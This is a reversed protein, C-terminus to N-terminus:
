SFLDFDVGGWQLGISNFPDLMISAVVDQQTTNQILMTDGTIGIATSLLINSGLDNSFIKLQSIDEVIIKDGDEIRFDTITQEGNLWIFLDAGSGGTLTNNGGGGNLVDMGAGGTLTDNGIGGTLYDNDDGGDLMDDGYEGELYDNGDNGWLMDDGNEGELYDNGDNGWLKDNGTFGALRDNGFSGKLEDDKISGYKKDDGDTGTWNWGPLFSQAFREWDNPPRFESM